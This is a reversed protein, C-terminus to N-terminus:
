AKDLVAMAKNLNTKFDSVSNFETTKKVLSEPDKMLEILRLGAWRDLQLIIDQYVENYSSINLGDQIDDTMRTIKELADKANKDKNELPEVNIKVRSRTWLVMAIIVLGVVLLIKPWDLM